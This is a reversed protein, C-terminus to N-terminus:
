ITKSPDLVDVVVPAGGDQYQYDLKTFGLRLAFDAPNETVGSDATDDIALKVALLRAIQKQQANIDAALDVRFMETVPQGRWLGRVAVESM